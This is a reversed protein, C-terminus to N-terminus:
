PIDGAYTKFILRPVSQESPLEGGQCGELTTERPVLHQNVPEDSEEAVQAAGEEHDGDDESVAFNVALRRDATAFINGDVNNLVPPSSSFM